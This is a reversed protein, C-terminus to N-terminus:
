KEITLLVSEKRDQAAKIMETLKACWYRSNSVVGVKDNVGFLICGETDKASNGSHLRVGQFGKVAYVEPMMKRFRPSYSMGIKYRGSPIATQGYVKKDLIDRVSMDSTLGRDTDELASCWEKGDGLRVGDIFVRSITYGPKKWARDIRIEM